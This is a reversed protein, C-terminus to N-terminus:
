MRRDPDREPRPVPHEGSRPVGLRDLAASVVDPWSRFVTSLRAAGRRVLDDRLSQDDRMRVIADRLSAVSWPDFYLAGEGCVEHAFDLDSALIPRGFHMAELYCSSFSELLSPHVVADCALYCAALEEQRLPGLNVIRDGLGGREIAALVRAARPHQTRD